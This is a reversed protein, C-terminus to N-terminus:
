NEEHNENAYGTIVIENLQGKWFGVSFYLEFSEMRRHFDKPVSPADRVDICLVLMVKEHGLTKHLRLVAQPLHFAVPPQRGSPEAFDKAGQGQLEITEHASETQHPSSSQLESRVVGGM